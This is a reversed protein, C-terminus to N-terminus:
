GAPEPDPPAAAAFRRPNFRTVGLDLWVSGDFINEAAVGGLDLIIQLRKADVLVLEPVRMEILIQARRRGRVADTEEFYGPGDVLAYTAVQDFYGPLALRLAASADGLMMATQIGAVVSRRAAHHAAWVEITIREVYDALLVLATGRGYVDASEEIMSAPGLGFPEHLTDGPLFAVAPMLAEEPDDPWHVHIREAPLRWRQPEQGVAMTRRFELGAIWTRLRDLGVERAGLDPLIPGNGAPFVTGHTTGDATM